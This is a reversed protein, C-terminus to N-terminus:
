RLTLTQQEGDSNRPPIDNYCRVTNRGQAKAQYLAQDAADLLSKLPILADPTCAVGVSITVHGHPSRPHPIALAEIRSRLEEAIDIANDLECDYLLVVFEEGGPRTVLDFPRRAVTRMADAISRLAGDGAMHGLTDNYLKFYDVDAFLASIPKDERRAQRLLQPGQEFLHRRNNLGTLHDRLSIQRVQRAKLWAYREAREVLLCAISCLMFTAGLMFINEFLEHQPLGAGCLAATYAVVTAGALPVAHRAISGSLLLLFILQLALLNYPFAIGYDHAVAIAYIHVVGDFALVAPTLLYLMGRWRPALRAVLPPAANPIGTLLLVALVSGPLRSSVMGWELLLLILYITTGVAFSFQILEAKRQNHYRLYQTEVAPPFSLGKRFLKHPRVLLQDAPEVVTSEM